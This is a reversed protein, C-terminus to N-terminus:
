RLPQQFVFGLSIKLGHACPVAFRGPDVGKAVRPSRLELAKAAVM